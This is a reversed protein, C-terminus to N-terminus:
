ILSNLLKLNDKINGDLLRTGIAVEDVGLLNLKGINDVWVGGDICISFHSNAKLRLEKLATIKDLVKENFKQGGIGAQYSMLLVVGLKEYINPDLLTISTDIDIAMGPILNLSGAKKIFEDGSRMYEIQGIVRDIHTEKCKELYDIPNNVMLHADLKMETEVLPFNNLNFNPNNKFTGDNIDIQFRDFLAESRAVYDKLESTTKVFPSPVIIM